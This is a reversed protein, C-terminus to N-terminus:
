TCPARLSFLCGLARHHFYGNSTVQEKFLALVMWSNQTILLHIQTICLSYNGTIKNRNVPTARILQASQSSRIGNKSTGELQKSWMARLCLSFLRDLLERRM